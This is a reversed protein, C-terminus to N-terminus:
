QDVIQAIEYNTFTRGDKKGTSDHKRIEFWFSTGVLPSPVGSFENSAPFCEALLTQSYGNEEMDPSVGCAKLIAKMRHISMNSMMYQGKEPSGKDRDKWNQLAYRNIRLQSRFSSGGNLTPTDKSMEVKLNLALIECKKGGYENEYTESSADVVTGHETWSADGSKEHKANPPIVLLFNAAAEAQKVVDGSIDFFGM